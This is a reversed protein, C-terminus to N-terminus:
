TPLGIQLGKPYQLQTNNNQHFGCQLILISGLGFGIDKVKENKEEQHAKTSTQSHHFSKKNKRRPIHDHFVCSNCSDM